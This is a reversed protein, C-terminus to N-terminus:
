SWENSRDTPAPRRCWWRFACGGLVFCTISWGVFLIPDLSAFEIIALCSLVGGFLAPAIIKWIEFNDKLAGIWDTTKVAMARGTCTLRWKYRDATLFGQHLIGSKSMPLPCTGSTADLKQRGSPASACVRTWARVLNLVM